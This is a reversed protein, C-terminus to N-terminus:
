MVALPQIIFAEVVVVVMVSQVTGFGETVSLRDRLSAPETNMRKYQNILRKQLMRM